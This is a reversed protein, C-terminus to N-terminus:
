FAWLRWVGDEDIVFVVSFSYQTGNRVARLDYEATRERIRLVRIAPLDAAVQPLAGADALAALQDRYPDQSSGALLAVAADVDVRLLAARLESWLAKLITDLAAPDFVQVIAQSSTQHGTADTVTATPVYIGPATYTFTTGDLSDSRLEVTGDGELDLAVTGADTTPSMTFTVGLPAVGSAPATRLAVAPTLVTSVFVAITDTATGGGGATATATLATTDSTVAVLAAFSGNQLAAAAGNVAIGVDSATAHLTGRVLLVGAPVTAGAVPSTITVRLAAEVTITITESATGGRGDSVTFTISVEGVQTAGPAFTFTRTAPDFTANAPLPAASFSLSDGDPDSGSVVFSLTVGLRGSQNGIPDLVPPHNAPVVTITVSDSADAHGDSVTVQFALPTPAAVSPARFTPGTSAGGSLTVTPGSTQSWAFTLADGDPDASGTADLTVSTREVVTRDPGAHAIPPHNPPQVEIAGIDFRATASGTVNRPRARQGRSDAELIDDLGLGLTRPDLGQDILPSGAGPTFDDDVDSASGDAGALRAYVASLIQCGPSASVGPGETGTPTLNGTDTSDLAPGNIEGLRNGCLLNNLLHFNAPRPRTSAERTVGFRGGTSGAATGNGTIANNVLFAEHNRTVHVGSWGNAHITNGVVYHPGGDGDLTALGHRGNAYILNNAIVTGPNGRAITIGGTCSDGSSRANRFIRNREVHIGANGNNGGQLAIAEGGFGTIALGRITVFKSRQVRIAQGNTCPGGTGRLVVSDPPATPDAEIVLRDPEAAGTASNKGVIAVQESYLGALVIVRDGPGAATVAAQITRYCPARGQCTPDTASVSLIRGQSKATMSSAVLAGVLALGGSWTARRM